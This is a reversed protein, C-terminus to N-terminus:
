EHGKDKLFQKVIFHYSPTTEAEIFIQYAFLGKSIRIMFMNIYLLCRSIFNDGIAKPYPAPIGKISIINLRTDTILKRFSSFTFLRTHTKDLIGSKGYNFFGLFLMLRVPLFAVNGTTLIIRQKKYGFQDSIKIMFEEPNILHEIIDLFLLYDYEEINIDFSKDLNNVIHKDLVYKQPIDFQDVTVVYCNRNKLEHGIGFPGAGIDLVKSNPKISDIAFTHSSPYNLKLSYQENNNVIDFKNQYLIGLSHIYAQLLIYSTGLKHRTPINISTEANIEVYPFDSLIFQVMLENIFYDDDSNFHYKINNLFATNYISFKPFINITKKFVKKQLFYTVGFRSKVHEGGNILAINESLYTEIQSFNNRLYEWQVKNNITTYDYKEKQALSFIVKYIKGIPLSEQLKLEATDSKEYNFNQVLAHIFLFHLDIEPHNLKLTRSKVLFDNIETEYDSYFCVLLRKM